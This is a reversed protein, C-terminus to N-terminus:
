RRGGRPPTTSAANAGLGGTGLGGATLGPRMNLAGLGVANGPLGGTAGTRGPAGAGFYGGTNLFFASHGTVPSSATTPAYANYQLNNIANANLTVQGQLTAAANRLDIEPRVLGYYNFLTSNGFVNNANNNRLLNLYPSFTPNSINGIGSPRVVGPSTVPYQARAPAGAGHLALLVALATVVRLLNM